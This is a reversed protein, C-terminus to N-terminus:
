APAARGTQRNSPMPSNLLQHCREALTRPPAESSWLCTAGLERLPWELDFQQPTVIAIVPGAPCQSTAQRIVRLGIDTDTSLDILTVSGPAQQWAAAVDAVLRCPRIVLDQGLFYRKLGAEWRTGKEFIIIGPLFM